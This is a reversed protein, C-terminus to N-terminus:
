LEKLSVNKPTIRLQHMVGVKLAYNETEHSVPFEYSVPYDYDALHAQILQYVKQGFPRVTPKTDTFKGIILGSLQDLMGARKLQIMMRDINYIYEGVDEIFLIKNKTQYASKSGVLHAIMALNGGILEGSCIGIRNFAHSKCSYNTKVGKLARRLSQVYPKEAGRNNFAAAMPAHLSAINLQRHLHALLVTIDSFGIIWKPYKKFLTFDLSDIIRSLGYGGRGCLIAKIEPNDLMAQMENCREEDSGSFYTKSKSGLTKGVMVEYGWSQLTHICTQAKAAEMYGSPCTIGITDGKKLYPPIKNM